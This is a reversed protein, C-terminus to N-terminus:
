RRCRNRWATELLELADWGTPQQRQPAPQDAHRATGVIGQFERPDRPLNATDTGIQTSPDGALPGRRKHASM